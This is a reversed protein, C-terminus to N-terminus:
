NDLFPRRRHIPILLQLRHRIKLSLRKNSFDPELECGRTYGLLFSLTKNM